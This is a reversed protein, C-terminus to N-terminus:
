CTYLPTSEWSYAPLVLSPVCILVPYSLRITLDEFSKRFIMIWIVENSSCFFFRSIWPLWWFMFGLLKRKYMIKPSCAPLSVTIIIKKKLFLFSYNGLQTVPAHTDTKNNKYKVCTLMNCINNGHHAVTLFVHFDKFVFSFYIVSKLLQSLFNVHTFLSSPHPVNETNETHIFNQM